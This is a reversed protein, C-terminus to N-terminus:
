QAGLHQYYLVGILDRAKTTQGAVDLRKRLTVSQVGFFLPVSIVHGRKSASGKLLRAITFMRGAASNRGRYTNATRWVEAKQQATKGSVRVNAALIPRKRGKISFLKVGRAALKAPTMKRKTGTRLTPLPLWLLGRKGRITAGSEFVDSYPIKHWGFVAPDMANGREPYKKTRWANAWNNSFGQARIHARVATKYNVACDAFADNIAGAIKSYMDIGGAAKATYFAQAVAKAVNNAALNVVGM